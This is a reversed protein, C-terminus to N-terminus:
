IYIYCSQADSLIINKYRNKYSINEKSENTTTVIVIVQTVQERTRTVTQLAENKVSYLVYLNNDSM